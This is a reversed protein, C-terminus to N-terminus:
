RIRREWPEITRPRSPPMWSLGGVVVARQQARKPSAMLRAMGHCLADIAHSHMDKEPLDKMVQGSPTRKYHWGGSLARHLVKEHRSLLIMDRILQEKIWERRASWSAEGPIFAASLAKNIVQSACFLSNSQEPTALSPDGTDSWSTIGQYRYAMLPKVKTEILQEMGMGQAQITDLVHLKGSPQIQVFVCAPTQGGDWCRIVQRGPIPALDVKARHREEKYEPTVAEGQYITGPKGLVLRNLLEPKGQLAQEMSDRYSQEIHVNEGRPIQFLEGIRQEHFRQWTWHDEDPYNQTIQARKYYCPHRLSTLATIWAEEAVGVSAIDAEMVPALEEGWVGGMAVQLRNIDAFSDVGFLYADWLGPLTIQQGGGKVQLRPRIAACFSNPSSPKLIPKVTSRELNTYTDRFIVWPIPLVKPDRRYQEWAHYTMAMVGAETKGEGRPGM